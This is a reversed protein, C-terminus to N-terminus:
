NWLSIILVYLLNLSAFLNISKV